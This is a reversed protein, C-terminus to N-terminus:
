DNPILLYDFDIDETQSTNYENFLSLNHTLYTTNWRKKVLPVGISLLWNFTIAHAIDEDINFMKKILHELQQFGIPKLEDNKSLLYSNDRSYYFEMNLFEVILQPLDKM